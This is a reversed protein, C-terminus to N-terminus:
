KFQLLHIYDCNLACMNQLVPNGGGGGGGGGGMKLYGMVLNNCKRRINFFFSIFDAFRGGGGCLCVGKYM